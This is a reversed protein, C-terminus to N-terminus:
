FMVKRYNRKRRYFYWFYESNKSSCYGLYKSHVPDGMICFTPGLVPVIGVFVGELALFAIVVLTVKKVYKWVVVVTLGNGTLIFPPLICM